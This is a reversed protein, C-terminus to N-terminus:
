GRSGDTLQRQVPGGPGAIVFERWRWSGVGASVLVRATDLVPNTSTTCDFEDRTSM